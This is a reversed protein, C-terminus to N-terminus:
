GPLRQREAERDLWKQLERVAVLRRGGVYVIRVNPAIHEHWTHHSVGLAAAAETMSLAVRPVEFVAIPKSV